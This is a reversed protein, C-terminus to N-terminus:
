PRLLMVLWEYDLETCTCNQVSIKREFSGGNFCVSHARRRSYVVKQGLLCNVKSSESPTWDKYDDNTCQTGSPYLIFTCCLFRKIFLYIFLCLFTIM